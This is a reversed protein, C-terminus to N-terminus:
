RPDRPSPSTYLLCDRLEVKGVPGADGAGDPYSEEDRERVADAVGDGLLLGGGLALLRLAGRPFAGDRDAPGFLLAAIAGGLLPLLHLQVPLEEPRQQPQQLDQHGPPPALLRPQQHAM